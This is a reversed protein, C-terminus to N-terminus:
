KKKRPTKNSKTDVSWVDSQKTQDRVQMNKEGKDDVNALGM